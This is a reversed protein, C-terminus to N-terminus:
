TVAAAKATSNAGMTQIRRSLVSDAWAPDLL